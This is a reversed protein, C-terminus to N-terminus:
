DRDMTSQIKLHLASMYKCQHNSQYMPITYWALQSYAYAGIEPLMKELAHRRKSCITDVMNFYEPMIYSLLRLNINYTDVPGDNTLGYLGLSNSAILISKRCSESVRGLAMMARLSGTAYLTENMGQDEHLVMYRDLLWTHKVYQECPLSGLVNTVKLIKDIGFSILGKQVMMRRLHLIRLLRKDSVLNHSITLESLDDSPWKDPNRLLNKLSICYQCSDSNCEYEMHILDSSDPIDCCYAAGFTNWLQPGLVRRDTGYACRVQIVEEVDVPNYGNAMILLREPVAYPRIDYKHRPQPSYKYYKEAKNTLYEIPGIVDEYLWQMYEDRCDYIEKHQILKDKLFHKLYKAYDKMKKKLREM